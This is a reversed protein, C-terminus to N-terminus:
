GKIAGTTLGSIMFRQMAFYVVVVPVTILTLTAFMAGPQTFFQGSYILPVLSLPKLSDSDMTVLALVFENFSTMFQFIVVVALAPWSLPLAIFWFIRAPSVGDLRAAEELERPLAEFFGRLVIIAFPLGLATYPLILGVYSDLTGLSKNIQFLPVILTPVPLMLTTILLFFWFNKGRINMRAFAYAAMAGLLVVLGVSSLTIILSNFLHRFIPADAFVIGFNRLSVEDVLLGGFGTMRKEPPTFAVGLMMLVPVMWFLALASLFFTAMHRTARSVKIM